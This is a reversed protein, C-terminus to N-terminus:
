YMLNETHLTVSLGPYHSLASVLFIVAVYVVTDIDYRKDRASCRCTIRVCPVEIIGKKIRGDLKGGRGAAWCGQSHCTSIASILTARM